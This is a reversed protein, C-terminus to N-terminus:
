GGRRDDETSLVSNKDAQTQKNAQSDIEEVQGEEDKCHM